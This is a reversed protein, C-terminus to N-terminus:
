SKCFKYGVGRITKFHVPEKHDFEFKKRFSVIINDMTRTTLFVDYGWVKNLIEDRTVVLNENEILLKLFEMEKATLQIEGSITEARYSDFHITNNGFTYQHNSKINQNLNVNKLQNKIRLLLEELNFPKALYDDAGLKLGLIKHQDEGNASLIIIKTNENKTKISTCIEYGSIYPLMIDLVVLDFTNAQTIQMAEKGDKAESVDYGEIELNLKVLKRIEAEDEVILIKM